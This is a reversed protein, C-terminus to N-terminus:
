SKQYVAVWDVLMTAPFVTSSDPSGPWDGGVALNLVVFFPHTFVWENGRTTEPTQTEYPVDDVLFTIREPTWDIAFTHFASSFRAPSHLTYSDTLSNGGSYGPGHLSGHVTSPERGLNEMVDIEGSNPWPNTGINSGLLWFAPWLGMGEPLKIRAEIRGYEVEFKNATQLRGSTYQCKGYWCTDGATDKRATIALSGRGDESVNAADTTYYELENNGWGTGGTDYNWKSADPPTGAAGSFDDVWLPSWGPGPSGPPPSPTPTASPTISPTPEDASLADLIATCGTTGLVVTCLVLVGVIKQITIGRLPLAV